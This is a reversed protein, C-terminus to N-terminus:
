ERAQEALAALAALAAGLAAIQIPEPPVQIPIGCKAEMAAVVGPFLEAVGGTLVVPARLPGIELIREAVSHMCGLAIQERSAGDRLHELIESQGFVSCYSSIAVPQDAASALEMLRTPHVDLHRSAFMLFAGVGMACRRLTRSDTRQGEADVHIVTPDRGGVDVVTIPMPVHHFAGLAHCTSDGVTLVPGLDACRAGFGTVAIRALSALQVQAEDLANELAERVRQQFYGTALVVSRGLIQRGGDLVLAKVCESGVDVGAVTLSSTDSM